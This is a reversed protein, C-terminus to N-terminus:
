EDRGRKEAMAEEELVSFAELQRADMSRYGGAGALRWGSYQEIWALSQASILSKPCREAVAHKRAWVARGAVAELGAV